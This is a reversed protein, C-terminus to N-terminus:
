DKEKWKENKMRELQRAIKQVKVVEVLEECDYLYKFQELMIEVDAIEGIVKELEADVEAVTVLHLPESNMLVLRAIETNLEGLEELTKMTQHRIGYHRAIKKIEAKM